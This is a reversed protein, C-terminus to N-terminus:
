CRRAARRHLPRTREDHRRCRRLGAPETRGLVAGGVGRTGCREYGGDTGEWTPPLESLTRGRLGGGGLM